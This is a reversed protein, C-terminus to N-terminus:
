GLGRGMPSPTRERGGILRVRERRSLSLTLPPVRKITAALARYTRNAFTDCASISGNDYGKKFWRSPQESTGHTFSDPVAYGQTSKQIADDGIRPPAFRMTSTARSSRRTSAIPIKAAYPM